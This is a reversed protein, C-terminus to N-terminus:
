SHFDASHPCFFSPLIVEGVAKRMEWYNHSPKHRITQPERKFHGWTKLSVLTKMIETVLSVQSTQAGWFDETVYWLISVGHQKNRWRNAKTRCRRGESNAITISRHDTRSCSPHLARFMQSRGPGAQRDEHQKVRSREQGKVTVGGSRLDWLDCYILLCRPWCVPGLM